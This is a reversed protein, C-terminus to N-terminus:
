KRRRKTTAAVAVSAGLGREGGGGKQDNAPNAEVMLENAEERVTEGEAM